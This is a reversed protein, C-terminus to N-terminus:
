AVEGYFLGLDLVDDVPDVAAGVGSSRSLQNAQMGTVHM